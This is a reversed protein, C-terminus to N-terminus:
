THPYDPGRWSGFNTILFFLVSSLLTMGAIPLVRRRNKLFFGLCVSLAFSGYVYPMMGHFKLFCDSLLMALMPVVLAWRKDAFCAGGFLAIAAVPSFNQPHPALRLLAAAVVIGAILWTRRKEMM